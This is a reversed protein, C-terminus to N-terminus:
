HRTISNRRHLTGNRTRRTLRNNELRRNALTRARNEQDRAFIGADVRAIFGRLTQGSNERHNTTSHRIGGARYSKRSKKSHKSHKSHKNRM